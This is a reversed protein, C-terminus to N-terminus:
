CLNKQTKDNKSEVNFNVKIIILSPRHGRFIQAYLGAFCSLLMIITASKPPKKDHAMLSYKKWAKFSLDQLMKM